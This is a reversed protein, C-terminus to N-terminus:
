RRAGGFGAGGFGGIRLQGGFVSTGQRTTTTVVSTIVEDGESLGSLIETQSDSTLGTEVVVAQEKKDKLVRVINQEGQVRVASSPVLLVNDKTELIINATASMNPSVEPAETDFKIVVPYNAVGSTVTGVRDVTAVKGTFTKDALSDLKITAKQGPKVKAVDIESLNFTALPNGEARIVAIRQSTDSTGGLTMGEAYTINTIIGSVPATVIPSVAQYALWANNVARQAQEIVAKQNKYKAEAALWNDNEQIYTPDYALLGRALADNVFTRNAAWMASDLTWLTVVASDLSNKASLYSSYASASRQKSDTDLVLELVKRGSTVRDGDKVYVKKVLGSANSTVNVINATLIQGSASVSSIITGREVKQTQIQPQNKKGRASKVVMFAAVALIAMFIIFRSKKGLIEKKFFVISDKIKKNMNQYDLSSSQSFASFCFVGM